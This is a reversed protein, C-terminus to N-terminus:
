RLLHVLAMLVGDPDETMLSHGAKLLATHGYRAKQQLAKASKPPTMQDLQGLIFTTPCQVQEMAQQGNDYSDCAVFGRHFVNVRTNSALVRRM